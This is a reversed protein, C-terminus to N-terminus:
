AGRREEPERRRSKLSIIGLLLLVFGGAASVLPYLVPYFCSPWGQLLDSYFGIPRPSVPNALVARIPPSGRDGYSFVDERVSGDAALWLARFLMWEDRWESDPPRWGPSPVLRQTVVLYTSEDRHDTVRSLHLYNHYRNSDLYYPRIKVLAESSFSTGDFEIEVRGVTRASQDSSKGAEDRLEVEHEDISAELAGASFGRRSTAIREVTYHSRVTRATLTERAMLAIPPASAVLLLIGSILVYRMAWTDGVAM